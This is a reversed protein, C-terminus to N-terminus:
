RLGNNQDNPIKTDNNNETFAPENVLDKGLDTKPVKTTGQLQEQVAVDLAHDLEHSISSAARAQAQTCSWTKGDKNLKCNWQSGPEDPKETDNVVCSTTKKGTATCTTQLEAFITYSSSTYIAIILLTSMTILNVAKCNM